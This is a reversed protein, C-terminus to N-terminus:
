AVLFHRSLDEALLEAHLPVKDSFLQRTLVPTVMITFILTLVRVAALFM